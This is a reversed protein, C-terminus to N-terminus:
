IQYCHERAYEMAWNGQLILASSSSVNLSDVVLAIRRCLVHIDFDNNRDRMISVIYLRNKIVEIDM